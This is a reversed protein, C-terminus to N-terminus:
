SVEKRWEAIAKHAHISEDSEARAYVIDPISQMASRVVDEVFKTNDQAEKIKAAEENRKLKETLTASFCSDMLKFIDEFKPYTSKALMAIMLQCKQMHGVGMYEKSCPCATTGLLTYTYINRGSDDTEIIITPFQDRWQFKFRVKIFPFDGIKANISNKTETIFQEISECEVKAPPILRSMHVGRKNGVPVMIEIETFLTWRSSKVVVNFKGIGAILGYDTAHEEHIDKM